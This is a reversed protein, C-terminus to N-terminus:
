PQSPPAPLVPAPLPLPGPNGTPVPDTPLPANPAPPLTAPDVPAPTPAGNQPILNEPVPAAAPPTTVVSRMNVSVAQSTPTRPTMAVLSQGFGGGKRAKGINECAANVRAIVDTDKKTEGLAIRTAQYQFGDQDWAGQCRLIYGPHINSLSALQFGRAIRTGMGTAITAFEDKETVVSITGNQVDPEDIVIVKMGTPVARDAHRIRVVTRKTAPKPKVTVTVPKAKQPVAATVKVPAPTADLTTASFATLTATSGFAALATAGILFSRLTNSM